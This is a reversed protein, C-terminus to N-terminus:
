YGEEGIKKKDLVITEKFRLQMAIEVPAFDEYVAFQGSTVYNVDIGELVSSAYKPFAPNAGAPTMMEVTFESPPYLYRTTNKLEPAAHYRFARIINLAEIMEKQNRPTFKFDFQYERNSTARYLVELRPNIAVGQSKLWFPAVEGANAAKTGLETALSKADAIIDSGKNTGGNNNLGLVSAIKGAGDGIIDLGAGALGYNGLAETYSAADYQAVSTSQITDPAYLNITQRAIEDNGQKQTITFMLFSPLLEVELPYNLTKGAAYKTTADLKSLPGTKSGASNPYGEINKTNPGLFKGLLKDRAANLGESVLQSAGAKVASKIPNVVINKISIAM